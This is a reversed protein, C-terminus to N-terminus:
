AIIDHPDKMGDLIAFGDRYQVKIIAAPNIRIHWLDFVSTSCFALAGRIAMTFVVVYARLSVGREQQRRASSKSFIPCM